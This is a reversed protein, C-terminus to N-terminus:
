GEKPTGEAGRIQARTLQQKRNTRRRHRNEPLSRADGDLRNAENTGYQVTGRVRGIHPGAFVNNRIQFRLRAM